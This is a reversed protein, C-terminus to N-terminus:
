LYLSQMCLGGGSWGVAKSVGGQEGNIVKSMREKTITEIYDMQEIGIWRRKMKHAVALATGSGAFFDMVLDGEKTSIEIIRKLLAELKPTSFTLNTNAFFLKLKM